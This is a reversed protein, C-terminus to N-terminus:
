MLTDEEAWAYKSTCHTGNGTYGVDCECVFGDFTDMCTANPHCDNLESFLCENIALYTFSLPLIIIGYVKKLVHIDLLIDCPSTKMM